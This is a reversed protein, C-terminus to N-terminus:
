EAAIPWSESPCANAVDRLYEHARSAAAAAAIFIRENSKLAKSWTAIYAASNELTENDFGFEACLFAAGLEATLEEVSYAADAFRKGFTRDLRSEHGTWHTLEHFATSYYEAAGTFSEFIPLNIRDQKTSFYARAEGHTIHAGTAALFEEALQIRDQPNIAPPTTDDLSELGDCQALNFVTFSKLFMARFKEGNDSEKEISGVYIIPHGKEGKRVNGGAEQAQKYTLYRATAYKLEDRAMWLTFVNAGSYARGTIANRPMVGSGYEHWPKRWPIVGSELAALIKDTIEKNLNRSM